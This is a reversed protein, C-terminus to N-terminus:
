SRAFVKRKTRTSWLSPAMSLPPSRYKYRIHGASAHANVRSAEGRRRAERQNLDPIGEDRAARSRPHVRRCARSRVGAARCEGEGRRADPLAHPPPLPRAPGAWGRAFPAHADLWARSAHLSAGAPCGRAASPRAPCAFLSVLSFERRLHDSVSARDCRGCLAARRWGERRCASLDGSGLKGSHASLLRFDHAQIGRIGNGAFDEAAHFLLHTLLAPGAAMAVSTGGLDRSEAQARLEASADFARGLVPLRFSTHIELRIPNDPDESAPRVVREDPRAFVRHRPTDFLATWGAGVLAATARELDHPEKLLLDLDGMPRLSPEEYHFFALAAGKLAVVEVDAARLARVSGELTARLRRTRARGRLNEEFLFESLRAPCRRSQRAGAVLASLGQTSIAFAAIEEKKEEFFRREPHGRLIPQMAGNSLRWRRRRTRPTALTPSSVSLSSGFAPLNSGAGTSGTGATTTINGPEPWGCPTRIPRAEWHGPVWVYAGGRWAHYGAIWVHDPGPAVGRVEVIAAPPRTHVYVADPPPAVVCSSLLAVAFAAAGPFCMRFSSTRKM